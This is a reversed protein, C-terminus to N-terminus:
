LSPSVHQHTQRVCDGQSRIKVAKNHRECCTATWSHLRKHLCTEAVYWSNNNDSVHCCSTLWNKMYWWLHQGELTDEPDKQITTSYIWSKKVWMHKIILAEGMNVSGKCVVHKHRDTVPIAYLFSSSLQTLSLSFQRDVHKDAASLFGERTFNCNIPSMGFCQTRRQAILQGVM